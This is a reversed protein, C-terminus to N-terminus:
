SGQANHFKSSIPYQVIYKQIDLTNICVKSSNTSDEFLM